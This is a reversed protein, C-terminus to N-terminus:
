KWTTESGVMCCPQTFVFTSLHQAAALCKLCRSNEKFINIYNFVLQDM